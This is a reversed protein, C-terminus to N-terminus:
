SALQAMSSSTEDMSAAAASVVVVPAWYLQQKPRACPPAACRLLLVAAPKPAALHDPRRSRASGGCTLSNRLGSCSTGPEGASVPSTEERMGILCLVRYMNYKVLM